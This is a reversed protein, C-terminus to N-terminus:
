KVVLIKPRVRIMMAYEVRIVRRPALRSPSLLGLPAPPALPGPHPRRPRAPGRARTPSPPPRRPGRPAPPPPPPAARSPAGRSPASPPLRPGAPRPPGQKAISRHMEALVALAAAACLAARAAPVDGREAATRAAVRRFFDRREELYRGLAGDRGGPGRRGARRRRPAGRSPALPRPPPVPRAQPGLSANIRATSAYLTRAAQLRDEASQPMEIALFTADASSAPRAAPASSPSAASAAGPGARAAIAMARDVARAALEPRGRHRARVGVGSRAGGGAGGALGADSPARRPRPRPPPPRPPPVHAARHEFGPVATSRLLPLSPALLAPDAAAIALEVLSAGIMYRGAAASSARMIGLAETFSRLAGAFDGVLMSTIGAGHRADAELLTQGLWRAMKAVTRFLSHARQLFGGERELMALSALVSSEAGISGIRRATAIGRECWLRAEAFKGEARAAKSLARQVRCLLESPAGELLAEARLLLGRAGAADERFMAQIAEFHLLRARNERSVGEGAREVYERARRLAALADPHASATLGSALMLLFGTWDDARDLRWRGAGGGRGGKDAGGGDEHAAPSPAPRLEVPGPGPGPRPGPPRSLLELFGLCELALAQTEGAEASENWEGRVLGRAVRLCEEYAGGRKYHEYQITPTFVTMQRHGHAADAAALRELTEACLLHLARRRGADITDYLVLALLSSEFAFWQAHPGAAKGDRPYVLLLGAKVAEEKLRHLVPLTGGGVMCGFCEPEREGSCHEWGGYEMEGAQKREGAAAEKKERVEKRLAACARCPGHQLRCGRAAEDGQRAVERWLPVCLVLPGSRGVVSMLRLLEFCEASVTSRARALLGAGCAEETHVGADVPAPPPVCPKEEDCGARAFDPPPAAPLANPKTVNLHCAPCFNPRTPLRCHAGGESGDRGREDKEAGAPVPLLELLVCGPAGGFAEGITTARMGEPTAEEAGDEEAAAGTAPAMAPPPSPPRSAEGSGVSVFSLSRLSPLRRPGGRGAEKAGPAEPTGEGGKEPKDDAEPQALPPAPAEPAESAASAPTPPPALALVPAAPDDAHLLWLVPLHASWRVLQALVALSAEDAACMTEVAAALLAVLAEATARVAEAPARAYERSPVRRAHLLTLLAPLHRPPFCAPCTGALSRLRREAYRPALRAVRPGGVLAWVLEQLAGMFKVAGTNRGPGLLEAGERPACPVHLARLGRERARRRWHFLLRPPEPAARPHAPLLLLASAAPLRRLLAEFLFTEHRRGRLRRARCWHAFAVNHRGPLARRAAKLFFAEAGDGDGAVSALYSAYAATRHASRIARELFRAHVDEPRHGVEVRLFLRELAANVRKSRAWPQVLLAGLVGAGLLPAALAAAAAAPELPPPSPGARALAFAAAWLLSAYLAGRLRAIAASYFPQMVVVGWLMLAVCALLVAATALRSAPALFVYAATILTKAALLLVDLRPHERRMAHRSFPDAPYINLSCWVSFPLHMCLGYLGFSLALWRPTRECFDGAYYSRCHIGQLFQQLIPIYLTTSLFPAIQCAAVLWRPPKPENLAYALCMLGVLACSLTTLFVLLYFVSLQVAEFLAGPLLRGLELSVLDLGRIGGTGLGEVGSVQAAINFLQVWESLVAFWPMIFATLLNNGVEDGVSLLVGYLVRKGKWRQEELQLQAALQVRELSFM